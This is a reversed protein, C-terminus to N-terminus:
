ARRRDPALPERGTLCRATVHSRRTPAARLGDLAGRRQVCCTQASLTGRLPGLPRAASGASVPDARRWARRQRIRHSRPPGLDDRM